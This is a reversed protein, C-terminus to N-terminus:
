RRQLKQQVEGALTYLQETRRHPETSLLWAHGAVGAQFRWATVGWGGCKMDNLGTWMYMLREDLTERCRKALEPAVQDLKKNLLADEIYIRAECEQVGEELALLRTMAVQRDAQPELMYSHLKHLYGAVEIFRENVWGVRRGQANKISPWYDLGVRGIGNYFDSTIATECMFRWYSLPFPENTM